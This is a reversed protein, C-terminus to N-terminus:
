YWNKRSADYNKWSNPDKKSRYRRFDKRNPALESDNKKKSKKKYIGLLSSARAKVWKGQKNQNSLVVRCVTGNKNYTFSVVKHPEKEYTIIEGITLTRSKSGQVLTESKSM